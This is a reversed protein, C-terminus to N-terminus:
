RGDTLVDAGSATVAVTHEYDRAGLALRSELKRTVIQSLQKSQRSRGNALM